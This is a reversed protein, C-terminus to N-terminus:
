AAESKHEAGLHFHVNVLPLSNAQADTLTIAKPVKDGPANATLDRPTQPGAMSCAPKQFNYPCTPAGPYTGLEKRLKQPSAHEENLATSQARLEHLPCSPHCFDIIRTELMTASGCCQNTKYFEKVDGCSLGAVASPLVVAPLLLAWSKARGPLAFALVILLLTLNPTMGMSGSFEGPNTDCLDVEVDDPCM